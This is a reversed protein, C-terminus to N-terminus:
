NYISFGLVACIDIAINIILDIYINLLIYILDELMTWFWCGGKLAREFMELMTEEDRIHAPIDNTLM